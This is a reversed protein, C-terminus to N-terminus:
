RGFDRRMYEQWERVVADYDLGYDELAKGLAVKIPMGTGLNVLIDKVKYAGYTSIMFNVMAYSQQYALAAERVNLSAFSGELSAFALFNGQKAARGLEAMPPNYEKRGEYEALGEDLWTPCNGNSIEHVVVHTYEHFLVGRLVSSLETAGGIPLRIKGDYLGGSWDPSMTVSRYDKKTYLLVPIRSVPFHSFDSGVRNYADELASLVGDALDSKVETDYSIVFKSSYGKDMRSEVALERRLKDALERVARNSPDITLAKDWVEQAGTLNGTDYYVRGLYYLLELSDGGISRARELEYAAADHHKGSYLAIGRLIGYRANDPFLERANDFSAAAEDFLGKEMRRQGVFTYAEALNKRLTENYPFMGFAKQLQELGKEYEGKKLLELAYDNLLFPDNAIAHSVPVSLLSLLLPVIKFLRSVHHTM